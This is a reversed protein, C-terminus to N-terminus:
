IRCVITSSDLWQRCRRGLYPVGKNVKLHVILTLKIIESIMSDTSQRRIRRSM